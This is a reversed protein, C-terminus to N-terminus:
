SSERYNGRIEEEARFRQYLSSKVVGSEEIIQNIGTNVYGQKYFLRSATEIVSDHISNKRKERMVCLHTFYILCVLRNEFLNNLVSGIYFSIFYETFKY